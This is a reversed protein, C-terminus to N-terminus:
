RWDSFVLRVRTLKRATLKSAKDWIINLKIAVQRAITSSAPEINIKSELGVQLRIELCCLVVGKKTPLKVEGFDKLNESFIPRHNVARLVFNSLSM